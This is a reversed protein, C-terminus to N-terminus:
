FSFASWFRTATVQNSSIDHNESFIVFKSPDQGPFGVCAEMLLTVNIEDNSGKTV